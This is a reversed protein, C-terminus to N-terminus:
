ESKTKQEKKDEEEYTILGQLDGLFISTILSSGLCAPVLYLLAPQAAQFYHMVFFTLVLGLFYFAFNITFYPTGSSKDKSAAARHLDYRFLFSVFAGPLVIDGLGLMSFAYEAAWLSKPFLLKVPADFSKAVTVMVETGFVWFIDYFFLGGMLICGVKYSKIRLGLLAVGQYSLCLGLLNNLLWHKSFVYQQILFVCCSAITLDAGSLSLPIPADILYPIAPVTFSTLVTRSSSPFYPLLLPSITKYLAGFCVFLLYGTLIYNVLEKGVVKFAVYLGFLFAGAYFPFQYADQATMKEEEEEGSLKNKQSLFCGYYIPTLAM